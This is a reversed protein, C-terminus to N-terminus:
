LCDNSMKSPKLISSLVHILSSLSITGLDPKPHAKKFTFGQYPNKFKSLKVVFSTSKLSVKVCYSTSIITRTITVIRIPHVTVIGNQILPHGAMRHSTRSITNPHSHHITQKVSDPTSFTCFVM